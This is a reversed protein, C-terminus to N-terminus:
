INHEPLERSRVTGGSYVSLSPPNIGGFPLITAALVSLDASLMYLTGGIACTSWFLFTDSTRDTKFPVVWRRRFEIPLQRTQPGKKEGSRSSQLRNQALQAIRDGSLSAYHNQFGSRFQFLLIRKEWSRDRNRLPAPAIEYVMWRRPSYFSTQNGILGGIWAFWSNYRTM